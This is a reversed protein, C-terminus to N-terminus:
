GPDLGRRTAKFQDSCIIRMGPVKAREQAAVVVTSVGDLLANGQGTRKATDGQAVPQGDAGVLGGCLSAEIVEARNQAVTASLGDGRDLRATIEVGTTEGLKGEIHSRLQIGKLSLGNLDKELSRGVGAQNRAEKDIIDGQLGALGPRNTVLSPCLPTYSASPHVAGDM